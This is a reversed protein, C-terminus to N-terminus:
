NGQDSERDLGQFKSVVEQFKDLTEPLAQDLQGFQRRSQFDQEGTQRRKMMQQRAFNLAQEPTQEVLENNTNRRGSTMVPSRYSPLTKLLDEVNGFERHVKDYDGKDSAQNISWVMSRLKVRGTEQANASLGEFLNGSEGEGLITALSAVSRSRADAAARDHQRVDAAAAQLKRTIEAVVNALADGNANLIAISGLNSQVDTLGRSRDAFAKQVDQIRQGAIQRQVLARNAADGANPNKQIAAVAKDYRAKVAGLEADLEGQNEFRNEGRKNTLSFNSVAAGADELEKVQASLEVKARALSEASRANAAEVQKSYTAALKYADAVAEAGNSYKLGGFQNTATALEKTLSLYRQSLQDLTDKDGGKAARSMGRRLQGLRQQAIEGENAGGTEARDRAQKVEYLADSRDIAADRRGKQAGTVNSTAQNLRGNLTSLGEKASELVLEISNRLKEKLKADVTELGDGIKSLALREENVFGLTLRLKEAMAKRTSEIDHALVADSSALAKQAADKQYELILDHLQSAEERERQYQLIAAGFAATVTAVTIPIAMGSLTAALGAATVQSAALATQWGLIGAGVTGAVQLLELMTNKLGGFAASVDLAGQLLNTKLGTVLANQFQTAEKQFKAGPTADYAELAAKSKALANDQEALAQRFAESRDTLVTFAQKGRMEDFLSAVSATSGGTKERLMDLAKALGNAGIMAQGTGAGIEDYFAQLGKTPKDLKQFLAQLLTMATNTKIGTSTIAVLGANVEEFSVGLAKASEYVRGSTNAVEGLKVRGLDVTSFFKAALQEADGTAFGYSNMASSLANTADEVSANTIKALNGAVTLVNLSDAGKGIQNSLLDYAGAATQVLPVGLSDSVKRLSEAWQESTLNADAALTQILGIQRSFQAAEDTASAFQSYLRAVSQAAAIGALASLQANVSGLGSGFQNLGGGISATATNFQRVTAILQQLTQNASQNAQSVQSLATIYQSANLGLTATGGGNSAM